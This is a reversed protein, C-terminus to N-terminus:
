SEEPLSNYKSDKPKYQKESHYIVRKQVLTVSAWRWAEWGFAVNSVISYGDRM